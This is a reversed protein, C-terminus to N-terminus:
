RERRIRECESVIHNMKRIAEDETEFWLSRYYDSALHVVLAYEDDSNYVIHISLIKNIAIYSSKDLQIFM